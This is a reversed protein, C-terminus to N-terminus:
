VGRVKYHKEGAIASLYGVAGITALFM